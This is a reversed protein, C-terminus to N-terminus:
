HHVDRLLAAATATAPAFAAGGIAGVSRRPRCCPRHSGPRQKFLRRRTAFILQLLGITLPGVEPAKQAWPAEPLMSGMNECQCACPWFLPLDHPLRM